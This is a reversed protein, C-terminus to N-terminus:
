LKLENLVKKIVERMTNKSAISREKRSEYEEVITELIRIEDKAIEYMTGSIEDNEYMEVIAIRVDNILYQKKVKRYISEEIEEPIEVLHQTIYFGIFGGDEMDRMEFETDSHEIELKTDNLNCYESGRTEAIKDLLKICENEDFSTKVTIVGREDSTEWHGHLVYLEEM